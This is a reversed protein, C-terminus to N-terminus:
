VAPADVRSSVDTSSADGAVRLAAAQAREHIARVTLLRAVFRFHEADHERGQDSFAAAKATVEIIARERADAWQELATVFAAKSRM